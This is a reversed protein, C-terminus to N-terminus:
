FSWILIIVLWAIANVSHHIMELPHWKLVMVLWFLILIDAIILKTGLRKVFRHDIM